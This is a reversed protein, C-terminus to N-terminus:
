NLPIPDALTVWVEDGFRWRDWDVARRSGEVSITRVSLAAADFCNEVPADFSDTLFHYTVTGNTIWGIGGLRLKAFAAAAFTVGLV